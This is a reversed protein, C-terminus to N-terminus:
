SYREAVKIGDVFDAEMYDRCDDYSNKSLSEDTTHWGIYGGDLYGNADMTLYTMATGTFPVGDLTYSEDLGNDKLMGM